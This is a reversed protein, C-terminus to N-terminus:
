ARCRRPPSPRRGASALFLGFPGRFFMSWGVRGRAAWLVPRSRRPLGSPIRSPTRLFKLCSCLPPPLGPVSNALAASQHVSKWRESFRFTVFDRAGRVGSSSGGGLLWAIRPLPFRRCNRRESTQLIRRLVSDLRFERLSVCFSSPNM